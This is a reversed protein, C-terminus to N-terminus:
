KDTESGGSNSRLRKLCVVVFVLDRFVRQGIRQRTDFRLGIPRFTSLFNQLQKLLLHESHGRCEIDFLQTDRGSCIFTTNKAALCLHQLLRQMQRSGVHLQQDKDRCFRAFRNGCEQSAVKAPIVRHQIVGM